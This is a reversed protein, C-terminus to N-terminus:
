ARCCGPCPGAQDADLEALPEALAQPRSGTAGAAGDAGLLDRAGIGVAVREPKGVGSGVRDGRAEDAQRVIRDLVERRHRHQSARREQEREIGAHRRLGHRLQDRERLGLRARQVVRGGAWRGQRVQRARQELLHGLDLEGV